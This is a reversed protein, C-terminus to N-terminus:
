KIEVIGGYIANTLYKHGDYEVVQYLIGDFNYENVLKLQLTDVKDVATPASDMRIKVIPDPRKDLFKKIWLCRRPEVNKGPTFVIAHADLYWVTGVQETILNLANELPLDQVKLTVQAPGNVDWTTVFNLSTFQRLFEVVESVPQGQVELTVRKQRLSAMLKQQDPTLELDRILRLTEELRGRVAESREISRALEEAADGGIKLLAQRAEERLGPDESAHAAIHKRILAQKEEPAAPGPPDAGDAGQAVLCPGALAALAMFAIRPNIM